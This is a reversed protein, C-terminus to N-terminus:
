SVHLLEMVGRCMGCSWVQICILFSLRADWRCPEWKWTSILPVGAPRCIACNLPWKCHREFWWAIQLQQKHDSIM